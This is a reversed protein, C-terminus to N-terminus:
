NHGHFRNIRTFYIRHMRIIEKLFVDSLIRAVGFDRAIEGASGERTCLAIM